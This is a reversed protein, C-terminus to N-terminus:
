SAGQRVSRIADPIADILDGALMAEQGLRAAALDGARGHLFVGAVATDWAPVGRAILAGLIGALVDGTGGTAMGPNGTANVAARGDADTVITRQGKLVTVAGTEVAFARATEVRRRQVEATTSGILRAMEGPHPTVLTSARRRLPSSGGKASSAANLGDADVIMPRECRSLLERVFARVEAGQGLGPGIVVADRSEALALARDIADKGLAGGETLPLGEAMAEPRVAAVLLGL